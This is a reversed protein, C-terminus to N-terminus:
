YAGTSSLLAPVTLLLIWLDRGLTWHRVYDTGLAARQEFSFRNRGMVQWLGTIGPRAKEYGEIHRGYAARQNALIPRQGVISMDGKLVNFLQPLEDISSLRLFRGIGSVRPDNRLKQFRNWEARAVEDSELLRQLVAAANTHMTRFKYMRFLKGGRGVRSQVYFAGGGDSRIALFVLVMLPALFLLALLSVMVDVARKAGGNIGWFGAEIAVEDPIESLDIELSPEDLGVKHQYM